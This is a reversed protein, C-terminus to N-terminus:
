ALNDMRHGLLAATGRERVTKPDWHLWVEPLLAPLAPVASPQPSQQSWLISALLIPLILIIVNRLPSKATIM